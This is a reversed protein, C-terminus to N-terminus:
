DMLDEIYNKAPYHFPVPGDPLGELFQKVQEVHSHKLEQPTGQAAVQSSALIYAYDAISLTENVDHSVLIGTMGLRENLMKILKILVGMSIPDQGTFPEDYLILDPDLAIARALAVRRSMGGSLENPMLKVAGRLGVAELKILVLDRIMSEPLNTNERLPFAVNDYTSMNTFLANNQFLMGMKKRLEYLQANKMSTLEEGDVKISGRDPFLQRSILKLVTTKGTGSPGMIATIKGKPIDMDIGSFIIREDRSYHLGRIEVLNKM